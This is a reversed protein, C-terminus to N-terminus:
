RVTRQEDSEDEVRWGEAEVQFRFRLRERNEEASGIAATTPNANRESKVESTPLRGKASNSQLGTVDVQRRDMERDTKAKGGWGAEAQQGDDRQHDRRWRAAQQETLGRKGSM